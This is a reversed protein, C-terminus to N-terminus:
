YTCITDTPGPLIHDRQDSVDTQLLEDVGILVGGESVIFFAPPQLFLQLAQESIEVITCM